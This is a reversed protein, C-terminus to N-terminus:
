RVDGASDVAWERREAASGHERIMTCAAEDRHKHMYELVREHKRSRYALVRYGRRPNVVIDVRHLDDHGSKWFAGFMGSPLELLLWEPYPCPRLMRLFMARNFEAQERTPSIPGEFVHITSM